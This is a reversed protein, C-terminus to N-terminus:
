CGGGDCGGGGSGGCISSGAVFNSNQEKEYKEPNAMRDAEIEEKIKHVEEIIPHKRNMWERFTKITNAIKM